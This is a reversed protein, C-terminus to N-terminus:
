RTGVAPTSFNSASYGGLSLAASFACCYVWRRAWSAVVAAPSPTRLSIGVPVPRSPSGQAAM